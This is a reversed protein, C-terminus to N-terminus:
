EYLNRYRIYTIITEPILGDIVLHNKIRRRLETSSIQVFSPNIIIQKTTVYQQFVSFDGMRPVVVIGAVIDLIDTSRYWCHFHMASDGGMILYLEDKPYEDQFNQVTDVAYSTGERGIEQPDMIAKPGVATALMSVMTLIHSNPADKATKFPSLKNPVIFLKDLEVEEIANRCLWLHGMHPPDFSGGYIGIKM